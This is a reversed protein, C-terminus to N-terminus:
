QPPPAPAPPTTVLDFRLRVAGPARTTDAAHTVSPSPAVVAAPMAATLPPAVSAGQRGAAPAAAPPRIQEALDRGKITETTAGQLWVKWGWFAIAALVLLPLTRLAGWVTWRWWLRRRAVRQGRQWSALLAARRLADSDPLSDIM